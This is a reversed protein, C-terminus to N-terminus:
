TRWRARCSRSSRRRRRWRCAGLEGFSSVSGNASRSLLPWTSTENLRGIQRSVAFGFTSAASPNFRLQSFPIRFEATWGQPDRSVSVDWVADWSDDRNTDNFWYRDAKVGSPNVAFDYATRRDHYSDILIHIWDCPSDLDRRTLYTVIKEPDTDYARVKVFLTTADYAVRFETRQSPEGGDHPERQVFADVPTAAIAPGAATTVALALVAFIM